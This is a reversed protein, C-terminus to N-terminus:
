YGHIPHYLALEMFRDFRIKGGEAQAAEALWSPM